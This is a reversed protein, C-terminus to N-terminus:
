TSNSAVLAATAAIVALFTIVEATVIRRLRHAATRSRRRSRELAPILVKQNYAGLGVLVGVLAVKVILVRGFETSFLAGVDGLIAIGLALGTVAVAAVAGVAAVSFRTALLAAELEVGRRHRRWLTAALMAVGAVWLSGATVHVLASAVVLWRPETSATHGIFAFSAVLAAAGALAVPSAEVRVRHHAVRPTPRTRTAVGGRSSVVEQELTMEADREVPRFARQDQEAAGIADLRMRMGVLVLAAGLVRLLVGTGFGGGLLEGYVDPAAIADTSGGDLIVAQLPLELLTGAFVLLAARRVLFILRRGEAHSGIHVFALYLIGGVALLLGGFAFFRAIGALRETGTTDPPELAHQLGASTTHGAGSGGGPHVTEDATETEGATDGAVPAPAKVTFSITGVMPHADGARASWKLGYTGEALPAHPVVELTRTEGAPLIRMIRLTEGDGDLLAFQDEVATVPNLFELAIGELPGTITAGNEPNSGTLEVHASAPTAGIAVAGTALVLVALLRARWRRPFRRVTHSRDHDAM